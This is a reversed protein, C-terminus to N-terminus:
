PRERKMWGDGSATGHGICRVWGGGDGGSVWLREDGDRMLDLPESKLKVVSGATSWWASEDDKVEEDGGVVAAISWEGAASAYALFFDGLLVRNFACLRFFLVSSRAPSTSGEGGGFVTESARKSYRWHRAPVSPESDACDSGRPVDGLSNM